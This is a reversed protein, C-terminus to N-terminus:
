AEWTKLQSSHQRKRWTLGESKGAESRPDTWPTSCASEFLPHVTSPSPRGQAWLVVVLRINSRLLDENEPRGCLCSTRHSVSVKGYVVGWLCSGM